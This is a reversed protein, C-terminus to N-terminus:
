QMFLTWIRLKKQDLFFETNPCKKRLPEYLGGKRQIPNENLYLSLLQWGSTNRLFPARFIHLLNVPSCGHRLTIEIFNCLLKISIANRCPHEGTFISCIKLVRKEIFVELHSSRIILFEASRGRWFKWM